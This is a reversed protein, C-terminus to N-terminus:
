FLLGKFLIGGLIDNIPNSIKKLDFIKLKSDVWTNEQFSVIEWPYWKTREAANEWEYEDSIDTEGFYILLSIPDM